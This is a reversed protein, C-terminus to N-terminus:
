LDCIGDIELLLEPRCIDAQLYIIATDNQFHAEVAKKILDVDESHRVYVKLSSPIPLSNLQAEQAIHALLKDINSLTTSIQTKLNETHDKSEGTISVHGIISATGSIYLQSSNAWHKLTARAFSPSQPGYQRPYQYASQQNPNEFHQGPTKAALLYIITDGHHHGLACASPYQSQDYGHRNFTKQRGTSFIRYREKDGEGSTIADMYNWMRLIHPYGQRNILELLKQYGIEIAQEQDTFATEDVVISAFLLQDTQSWHCGNDSGYDINETSTWIETLDQNALTKLGNNYLLPTDSGLCPTNFQIAVLLDERQLIDTLPESSYRCSLAPALDIHLTAMAQNKGNVSFV